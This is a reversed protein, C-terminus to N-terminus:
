KACEIAKILIMAENTADNYARHDNSISVFDGIFMSDDITRIDRLDWYKWPVKIKCQNMAYELVPFDFNTGRSWLFLGNPQSATRYKYVLSALKKCGEDVTISPTCLIDGLTSGKSLWWVLTSKDIGTMGHDINSDLSIAVNLSDVILQNRVVVAGLEIMPSNVKTGLTEIDVVIHTATKYTTGFSM